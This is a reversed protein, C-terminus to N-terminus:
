VRVTLIENWRTTYCQSLREQRLKWKVGSGQAAIKLTNWGYKANIRDMTKMVATHKERDVQDFLSGQSQDEPVIETVLVGAKKYRYGERYIAQLLYLAYKILELSSNTAVPLRCAFNQAYQPENKKFGNTHIFVMLVGACTRQKRLKYACRAAFTAVAEKIPELETQSEGFSRSTCIAKKAPSMLEMELCSIGELEKKIRLGVITMRKQVWSDPMQLFDWATKVNFSALLTAYQRGIGWVEDVALKKLSEEIKARSDLVFAGKNEPIKKAYYNAAKALVKTPGIGVSVPIGTNKLVTRRIARAYEELDVPLGALNLFAEDISYIEIEPTFEGLTNMVRQSMDGYLVYNSSFVAVQNAQLFGAIKFAPAGMKIGLAKAENSRAIVCGDNNSLVVVPKGNLSPNFARECSAYFNNCDVLAFM